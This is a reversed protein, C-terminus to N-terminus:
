LPRPAPWESTFTDRRSPFHWTNDLWTRHVFLKRDNTDIRQIWFLQQGTSDRYCWHASARGLDPEPADPPPASPTRFPRRPKKSTTTAAPQQAPLSLHQEIRRCAQKFDWGTCRMLLDLGSGAGGMQDKGGCQNCFWGGEDDDRDWRYRDTGGCAPCPQHTNTLQEPSLGALSQLLEPWRGSAAELTNPM